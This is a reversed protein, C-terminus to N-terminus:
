LAGCHSMLRKVPSIRGMMPTRRPRRSRIALGMRSVSKSPRPLRMESGRGAHGVPDAVLEGQCELVVGVETGLRRLRQECHEVVAAAAAPDLEADAASESM